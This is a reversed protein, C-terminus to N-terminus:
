LGKPQQHAGHHTWFAILGLCFIGVLGALPNKHIGTVWEPLRGSYQVLQGVNVLYYGWVLGAHIGISLGLRGQTSRKAWVLILGLIWLGMFQPSTRLIEPLPKVFHLLAFLFSSVLLAIRDSYDRELEDLLWGRFLLEEALGVALAVLLGEAFIRLFKAEPFQWNVGGLFALLCFLFFIGLIGVGLGKLLDMANSRSLSYGYHQFIHPQQYISRGWWHILVLFEGYLIVPAVIDVWPRDGGWGYIPIAFPLWSLLLMVVFLGMRIPAPYSGLKSLDGNM